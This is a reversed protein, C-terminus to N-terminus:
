LVGLIFSIQYMTNGSRQIDQSDNIYGNQPKPTVSRNQYSAYGMRSFQSVILFKGNQEVHYFIDDYDNM